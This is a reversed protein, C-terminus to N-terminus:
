SLQQLMSEVALELMNVPRSTGGNNGYHPGAYARLATELEKRFPDLEKYSAQVADRLRVFEETNM